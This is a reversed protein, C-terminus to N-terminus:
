QRWYQRVKKEAEDSSLQYQKAILGITQNLSIGSSQFAQINISMSEELGEKYGEEYARKKLNEWIMANYIQSARSKAEDEPLDFDEILAKVVNRESVLYTFLRRIYIEIMKERDIMKECKGGRDKNCINHEENGKPIFTIIGFQM